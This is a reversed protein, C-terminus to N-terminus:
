NQGGGNYISKRRQVSDKWLNYQSQKILLDDWTPPNNLLVVLKKRVVEILSKDKETLPSFSFDPFKQNESFSEIMLHFYAEGVANDFVNITDYTILPVALQIRLKEDPTYIKKTEQSYGFLAFLMVVIIATKRM